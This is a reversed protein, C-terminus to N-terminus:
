KNKIVDHVAAAPKDRPVVIYPSTRRARDPGAVADKTPHQCNKKLFSTVFKFEIETVDNTEDAGYVKGPEIFNVTYGTSSVSVIKAELPTCIRDGTRECDATDRTIGM